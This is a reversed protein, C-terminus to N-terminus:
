PQIRCANAANSWEGQITFGGLQQVNANCIDGIENNPPADDFWGDSAPDTIAECLEHSSVKTLSAFVQGFTCGQCTLYPEVAYFITKGVHGHYGCFIQCSRDGQLVSTAGPPLYVFYLMNGTPSPITGADIWRRLARKIGADTIERGGGAVVRGPTSTAITTSGTRRGHGITQSPVSFESLLDILSSTLIFDFFQNIQPVLGSQPQQQWAAGWFLTYVEVSSLLHGGHYTLHGQPALPAVGPPVLPVITRPKVM